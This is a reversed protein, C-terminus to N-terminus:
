KRNKIIKSVGNALIGLIAVSLLIYLMYLTTEVWKAETQTIVGDYGIIDPITDSALAYSILVAIGLGVIAFLVGKIKKPNVVLNYGAFLLTLITAVVVFIIAFTMFNGAYTLCEQSCDTTVGENSLGMTANMQEIQEQEEKIEEYPRACEDAAKLYVEGSETVGECKPLSCGLCDKSSAYGIYVFIGLAAIAFLSISVIKFIRNFDM